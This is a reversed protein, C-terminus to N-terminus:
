LRRVGWRGEEKSKPAGLCGCNSGQTAWCQSILLCVASGGASGDQCVSATGPPSPEWSQELLM